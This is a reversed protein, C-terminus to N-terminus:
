QRHSAALMMYHNVLGTALPVPGEEISGQDQRVMIVQFYSPFLTFFAHSTSGWGSMSADTLGAALPHSPKQIHIKDSSLHTLEFRGLRSLYAVRQGNGDVYCSFSVYMGTTPGSAAFNLANQILRIKATPTGRQAHFVPDAAYLVMPGTVAPSWVDKNQNAQAFITFDANCGDDPFVIANYSAFQATTMGQWAPGNAVTVQYGLDLAITKENQLAGTALAPGYILIKGTGAGAMLASCLIMVVISFVIKKL